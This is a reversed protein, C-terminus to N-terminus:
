SIEKVAKSLVKNLGKGMSQTAKLVGKWESQEQRFQDRIKYRSEKKNVNRHTQSGDSIDELMETTIPDHDSENSSNIADMGQESM